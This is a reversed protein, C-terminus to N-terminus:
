TKGETGAESVGRDTDIHIRVGARHEADVAVEWGHAEALTRVVPLIMGSNADPVAQGYALAAEVNESDIPKGDDVVVLGTATRSLEIRTAGNSISFRFLNALLRELRAGDADLEGPDTLELRPHSGADGVADFARRAVTGVDVRKTEEVPRGFQALVALDSVIDGMRNSMRSATDIHDRVSAERDPDLEKEALELTGQMVNTTNRLEHTIAAAFDDLQTRQHELERRQREVTTIDTFVLAQGIRTRGATLQPASLLFYREDDTDADEVNIVEPGDVPLHSALEPTVAALSTGISGDLGPFIRRATANVDHVVDDDDLLVIGEGLEDFLQERGFKRVALFSGEAVYLVGLAFLGVGIPEYNMTIITDPSAYGVIDFLVPLGALAVLAGLRTTAHNSERFLDFLIYFGIASLSYSLGTVVWHLVGFRVNLHSFPVTGVSTTFYLGHIPSTLKVSTIVVFVGLAVRRYLRERHYSEGAYASCFYLWAGVSTLGSILGLVYFTLKLGSTPAVLRGVHFSAWLGSTALLAVLGWRTDPDDLRARARGMAVFCVTATLSFVLVYGLRVPHMGVIM